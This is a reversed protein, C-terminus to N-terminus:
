DRPGEVTVGPRSDVDEASLVQLDRYPKLMALVLIVVVAGGLLVAAAPSAPDVGRLRGVLEATSLAGAQQADFAAAAAEVARSRAAVEIRGTVGALGIWCLLATGTRVTRDVAIRRAALDAVPSLGSLMPRRHVAAVVVACALLVGAAGVAYWGAVAAGAPAGVFDAGFPVADAGQHLRYLTGPVGPGTAAAAVGALSFALGCALLARLRTPLLGPWRRAVLGAARRPATVRPWTTQAIVPVVALWLAPLLVALAAATPDVPSTELAQTSWRGSEPVGGALHWGAGTDRLWAAALPQPGVWAGTALVTLAAAAMLHGRAASGAETWRTRRGTWYLILVILFSLLTVTWLAELPLAPM